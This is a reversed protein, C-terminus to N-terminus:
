GPMKHLDKYLPWRRPQVRTYQLPFRAPEALENAARWGWRPDDLFGRAVAILDAKGDQLIQEALAADKIMGVTMTTVGAKARIYESMPVMYGPEMPPFVVGPATNGASPTIYDAGAEVFARAVAAGDDLSLGGPHWDSGNIRIGFAKERPWAARVARIIELPFRLRNEFSGGFEDTRFNALPSLFENILYGHAAHIELLDFGAENARRAAAAFADRVREMAARDMEVPTEWGEDYPVASPGIGRWGGQAIPIPLGGGREWHPGCSAKRGTHVIQMGLKTDSFTRIDRVIKAFAEGQADNWLGTCMKSIRGIEEVASAEVIVVGAGGMALTSLHAAHFPQPLGDVASYMCMPSVVLRNPLELGGLRFPSFLM